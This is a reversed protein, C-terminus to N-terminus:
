GPKPGADPFVSIHDRHSPKRSILFNNLDFKVSLSSDSSLIHNKVANEQISKFNLHQRVITILHRLSMDIYTM